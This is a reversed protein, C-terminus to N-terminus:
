KEKGELPVIAERPGKVKSLLFSKKQRFEQM